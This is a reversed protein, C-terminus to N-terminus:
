RLSALVVRLTELDVTGRLTLRAGSLEIDIQGLAAPPPMPTPPSIPQALVSLKFEPSFRRSATSTPKTMQTDM